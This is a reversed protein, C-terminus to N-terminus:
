KCKFTLERKGAVASEEKKITEYGKTCAQRAKNNCSAWDEVAGSCTTFMEGDKLPIVPQLSGNMLQACGSLVFFVFSVIIKM